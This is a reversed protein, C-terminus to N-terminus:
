GGTFLYPCVCYGIGLAHQPNRLLLFRGALPRLSYLWSSGCLCRSCHSWGPRPMLILQPPQAGRPEGSAPIQLGQVSVIERSSLGYGQTLVMSRSRSGLTIYQSIFAWPLKTKQLDCLRDPAAWSLLM